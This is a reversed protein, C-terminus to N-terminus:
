KQEVYQKVKGAVVQAAFPKKDYFSWEGDRCEGDVWEGSFATQDAAYLYVGPGARRDNAWGGCYRDGNPYTYTGQGHRKGESWEGTYRSRDPYRMTGTGHKRGAVWSGSYWGGRAFTYRGEGERQGNKYMGDYTDGNPYTAPLSRLLLFLADWPLRSDEATSARRGAQMCPRELKM